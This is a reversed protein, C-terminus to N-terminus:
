GCTLTQAHSTGDHSAQHAHWATSRESPWIDPILPAFWSTV